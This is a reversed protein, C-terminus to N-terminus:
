LPLEDPNLPKNTGLPEVPNVIKELTFLFGKTDNASSFTIRRIAKLEEERGGERREEM